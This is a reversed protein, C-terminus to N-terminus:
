GIAANKVQELAYANSGQPHVTISFLYLLIIPFGIKKVNYRYDRCFPGGVLVITYLDCNVLKITMKYVVCRFM